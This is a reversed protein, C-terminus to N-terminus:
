LIVAECHKASLNFCKPLCNCLRSFNHWILNWIGWFWKQKTQLWFFVTTMLMFLCSQVEPKLDQFAILLTKSFFCVFFVFFLFTCQSFVLIIFYEHFFVFWTVDYVLFFYCMFPSKSWKSCPMLDRTSSPCNWFSQFNACLQRYPKCLITWFVFCGALHWLAKLQYLSEFYWWPMSKQMGQLLYALYASSCRQSWLM